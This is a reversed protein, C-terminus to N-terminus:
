AMVDLPWVELGVVMGCFGLGGAAEREPGMPDTCAVHFLGKGGGSGGKAETLSNGGLGGPTM